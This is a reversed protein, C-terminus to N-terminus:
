WKQLLERMSAAVDMRYVRNIEDSSTVEDPLGYAAVRGEDLLLMTDAFRLALSLDHFVGVAAHTDDSTWEDIRRLLEQQYYLDLHNTPEDLFLIFPDQALTRALFVRQLQGGSLRSLPENEINAIGCTQMAKEVSERDRHSTGGTLGRKQYAYRGLLVTEAVTFSFYASSLQALFGMERASDRPGLSAREVSKGYLRSAPDQVIIALSGRYPITGALVRLLTTKGCGNPGAICLSEGAHLTFSIDHLIEKHGQKSGGYGACLHEAQILIKGKSTVSM